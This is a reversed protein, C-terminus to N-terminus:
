EQFKEYYPDLMWKDPNRDIYRWRIQYDREDRIVHDYFERQWIPRGLHKTILTKWSRVVTSIHNGDRVFVIMHVHNPMIVYKDIGPVTRTFRDVLQGISSLEIVPRDAETKPSSVKGLLNKRHNVCVTVFVANEQSYDYGELRLSKRVYRQPM